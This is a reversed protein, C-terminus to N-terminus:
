YYDDNSDDESSSSPVKDGSETNELKVPKIQVFGFERRYNSEIPSEGFHIEKDSENFYKDYTKQIIDSGKYLRKAERRMAGEALKRTKFSRNDIFYESEKYGSFHITLVWIMEDEDNRENKKNINNNYQKITDKVQSIKTSM